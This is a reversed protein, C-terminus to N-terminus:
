DRFVFFRHNKHKELIWTVSQTVPGPQAVGRMSRWLRPSPTECLAAFILRSKIFDYNFSFIKIFSYQCFLSTRHCNVTERVELVSQDAVEQEPV